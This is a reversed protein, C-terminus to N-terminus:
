PTPEQFQLPIIVKTRDWALILDAKANRPDILISFAEYVFESVPTVPVDFKLIDLKPNYNYSGWLGVDSNILITWSDKQPITYLTYTGAKLDLGNIKIDRSVTIETAENAGTRWVQGFPVLSGFIERGNKNPRSFTVKIYTDKYRGSVMALPSPRPKAPDQAPVSWSLLIFGVLLAVKM